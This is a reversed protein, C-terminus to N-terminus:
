KDYDKQAEAFAKEICPLCYYLTLHSAPALVLGAQSRCERCYVLEGQPNLSGNKIVKM